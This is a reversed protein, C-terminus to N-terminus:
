HRTSTPSLGFRARRGAGALGPGAQAFWHDAEDLRGDLACLRALSLRLDMMPFRFDAPLAKLRVATEVPRLHDRRGLVWLTEATDSATRTYNLAWAPARSLARVPLALMALAREAQGRHAATRACGPADPGPGVAARSRGRRRARRLGDTDGGLRRGHGPRARRPHRRCPDTGLEMGQRPDAPWSAHKPWPQGHPASTAWPPLRAPSARGATFRGPWNAAPGPRLRRKRSRRYRPGCRASCISCYRRIRPRRPPCATGGKTSPRSRTGPLTLAARSQSPHGTCSLWRRGGGPSTWPCASM